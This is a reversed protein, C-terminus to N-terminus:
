ARNVKGTYTIIKDITGKKRRKNFQKFEDPHLQYYKPDILEHTAPKAIKMLFDGTAKANYVIPAVFNAADNTLSGLGFDFFGGGGVYPDRTSQDSHYAALAARTRTHERRWEAHEKAVARRKAQRLEFRAIRKREEEKAEEDYDHGFFLKSLGSNVANVVHSVVDDPHSATTEFRVHKWAM